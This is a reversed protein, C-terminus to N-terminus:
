PSKQKKDLLRKIGYGLAFSGVAFPLIKNMAKFQGVREPRTLWEAAKYVFRYMMWEAVPEIIGLPPDTNITSHTDHGKICWAVFQEDNSYEGTMALRQLQRHARQLVTERSYPRFPYNRIYCNQQQCFSDLSRLLVSGSHQHDLYIVSSDGAYLGHRTQGDSHVILHDAVQM